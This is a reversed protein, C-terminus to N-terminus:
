ESGSVESVRELLPRAIMQFPVDRPGEPRAIVMLVRLRDGRHLDAARTELSITRNVSIIDLTLPTPRNPDRLLEWPLGLFEPSSSQIWLEFPGQECARTYAAHPERTDFISQFLRQGMSPLRGHIKKGREEWVAYPAILYNELYWRLDNLDELSLPDKFQEAKGAHEQAIHVRQDRNLLSDCVSKLKIVRHDM